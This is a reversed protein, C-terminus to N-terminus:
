APPDNPGPAAAPNLELGALKWTFLGRRELILALREHPRDAQSLTVAFANLGRYAWAQRVKDDSASEAPAEAQPPAADRPRPSGPAQATRVMAAIAQPTVLADVAGSVLSPGFLLGLGSLASDDGREARMEAMLRATLQDKVSGRFAPFDVMRELAAADGRRAADTLARAALVPSALWAAFLAAALVSVILVVPRSTM